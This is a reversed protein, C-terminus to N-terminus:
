VAFTDDAKLRRSIRNHERKLAKLVSKDKRDLHPPEGKLGSPGFEETIRYEILRQIDRLAEERPTM